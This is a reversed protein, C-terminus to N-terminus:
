KKQTEALKKLGALGKEFDPGIMKDMSLFLSFAKAIFNKKGSMAWTVETGTGEQKFSFDVTNTTKMPKLFELQFEVVEGPQSKVLTMKGEGVKDNGTWSQSAGVGQAPGEYTTKMSPDLSSWPSWDNWRHIDNVIAFVRAPPAEIATSRSIVFDEPQMAAFICFVAVIVVLGILIKKLM